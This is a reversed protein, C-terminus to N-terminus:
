PLSCCLPSGKGFEGLGVRAADTFEDLVFASLNINGLNCNGYAPLPEEGCNAVTLGNAIFTHSVAETLDYVDEVGEPIVEVVLTTFTEGTYVRTRLVQRNAGVEKQKESGPLFGIERYFRAINERGIVLEHVPQTGYL